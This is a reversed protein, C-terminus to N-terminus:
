PTAPLPMSTPDHRHTLFLNECCQRLHWRRAASSQRVRTHEGINDNGVALDEKRQRHVSSGHLGPLRYSLFGFVGHTANGAHLRRKTASVASRDPPAARPGCGDWAAVWGRAAPAGAAVRM